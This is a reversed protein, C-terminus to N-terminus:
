GTNITGVAAINMSAKSSIINASLEEISKEQRRAVKKTPKIRKTEFFFTSECNPSSFVYYYDALHFYKQEHELKLNILYNSTIKLRM